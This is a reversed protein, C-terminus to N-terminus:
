AQMRTRVDRAWMTQSGTVILSSRRRDIVIRFMSRNQGRAPSEIIMSATTDACRTGVHSSKARSAAARNAELHKMPAGAPPRERADTTDLNQFIRNERVFIIRPLRHTCRIKMKETEILKGQLSLNEYFEFTILPHTPEDLDIKCVNLVKDM